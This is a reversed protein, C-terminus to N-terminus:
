TSTTMRCYPPATTSAALTSAFAARNSVSITLSTVRAASSFFIAMSRGSPPSVQLISTFLAGRMEEIVFIPSVFTTSTVCSSSVHENAANHTPALTWFDPVSGSTVIVRCAPPPLRSAALM